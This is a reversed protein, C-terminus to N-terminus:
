SGPCETYFVSVVNKKAMFLSQRGLMNIALASYRAFIRSLGNELGTLYERNDLWLQATM